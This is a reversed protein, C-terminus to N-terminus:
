MFTVFTSIRELGIMQVLSRSEGKNHNWVYLLITEGIVVTSHSSQEVFFMQAESTGRTQWDSNFDLDESVSNSNSGGVNVVKREPLDEMIIISLAM